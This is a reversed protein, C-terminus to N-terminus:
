PERRHENCKGSDGTDCSHDGAQEGNFCLSAHQLFGRRLTRKGLARGAAAFDGSAPFSGGPPFAMRMSFTVDAAAKASHLAVAACLASGTFIRM